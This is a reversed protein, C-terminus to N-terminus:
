LSIQYTRDSTRHINKESPLNGTDIDISLLMLDLRKKSTNEYRGIPCVLDIGLANKSYEYLKIVADPDFIMYLISPLSFVPLTSTLPIYMQNDPANVTTVYATLPVIFAGTTSTLHLKYGFIWGKTHSYSM